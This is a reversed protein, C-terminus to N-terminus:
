KEKFHVDEIEILYHFGVLAECDQCDIQSNGEGSPMYVEQSAGCPCVIEILHM